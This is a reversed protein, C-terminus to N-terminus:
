DRELIYGADGSEFDQLIIDNSLDYETILSNNYTAITDWYDKMYIGSRATEVTSMVLNAVAKLLARDIDLEDTDVSVTNPFRVYTQEDFRRLVDGFVNNSTLLKIPTTDKAVQELAINIKHIFMPIDDEKDRNASLGLCMLKFNAVTM